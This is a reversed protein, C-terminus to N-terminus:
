GPEYATGVDPQRHHARQDEELVEEPLDDDRRYYRNTEVDKPLVQSLKSPLEIDLWTPPRRAAMTPVMGSFLIRALVPPAGTPPNSRPLIKM